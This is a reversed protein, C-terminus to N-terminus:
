LQYLPARGRNLSRLYFITGITRSGNKFSRWAKTQDKDDFKQSQGAWLDWLGRGTDGFRSALAMGVAVWTERDDAPIYQLAKRVRDFDDGQDQPLPRHTPKERPPDLRELVWRPLDALLTEKGTLWRYSGSFTGKHQNYDDRGAGPRVAEIGQDQAQHILVERSV